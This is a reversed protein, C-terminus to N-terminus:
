QENLQQEHNTIKLYNIIINMQCQKRNNAFQAEFAVCWM